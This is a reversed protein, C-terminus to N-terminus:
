ERLPLEEAEAFVPVPVATEIINQERAYMTNFATLAVELMNDDPERTTLKQLALNPKILFRVLPNATRDATWRMYEYALGAIVPIFVIRSFLRWFMPLPGLMTFVLISILAVSLIFGTGCRPHEMSFKKVEGVTLEAGAEYANITKHEAGHYAFVRQIEKMRGISAIYLVLFLLRLFGEMLNSFWPTVELSTEAMQGLSAPLLFFLSISLVFSFGLTIWLTPGEIKQGEEAQYNASITLFRTGLGLADWLAILGRVFPIKRIGSRYIGKLDEEIIEINGAPTRVAAAVAKSGRMLVGEMLAQGGYSSLKEKSM